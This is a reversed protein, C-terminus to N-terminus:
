NKRCDFCAFPITLNLGGNAVAIENLEEEIEFFINEVLDRPIIKKWSELFSIKILFHNLMASGNVFKMKFEDLAVDIINFGGNSILEKNMEITKRKELIHAKLDPIKHRLNNKILISEYVSYFEQMTGPLNVTMIFQANKKCIRGCEELVKQLDTVNNIGNNSVILDFMESDFSLQEAYGEIIRVNRLQLTEIKLRIREVAAIWPDIGYIVSNDGFRQAIEVLPFGTGCGIDLVVAHDKYIIKELLKLGFPASWLPLEDLVSVVDKDTVSFEQQLYPLM